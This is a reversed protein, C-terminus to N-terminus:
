PVTHHGWLTFSPFHALLKPLRCRLCGSRDAACFRRLLHLLGQQAAMGWRRPFPAGGGVLRTMMTKVRSDPEVAPLAGFLARAADRRGMSYFVPLLVNAIIKLRHEGGILSLSSRLKVGGWACRTHWYSGSGDSLLDEMRTELVGLDGGACGSMMGRWLGKGGCRAFLVSIGSIRRPPSNAPRQAAGHWIGRPLEDLSHAIKLAEWTRATRRWARVSDADWGPSATAPILGAAGLLAAEVAAQRHREPTRRAILRLTKWPLCRALRIFADKRASYGLTELILRYLAQERGQRLV